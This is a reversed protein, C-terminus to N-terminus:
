RTIDAAIWHVRDPEGLRRRAAALAAEAIDLVSVDGHGAALLHDVLTSAGGGIDILPAEGPLGAADILALSLVPRAQYWSVQDTAKDIYARQWHEHRQTQQTMAQSYRPM